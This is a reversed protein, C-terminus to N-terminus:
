ALRLAQLYVEVWLDREADIAHEGTVRDFAARTLAQAFMPDDLLKEVARALASSSRAEVLLAEKGDSVLEPIGGVRTSVIPVRAYM